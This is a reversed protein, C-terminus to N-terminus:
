REAPLALAIQRSMAVLRGASDWLEGDEDLYGDVLARTRFRYALWGPEPVARVHVTMEITPVWPTDIVNLVPPPLADCFTLLSLPDPERGDVFRTWGEVVPDDTREGLVFALSAPTFRHDFRQVVPPLGAQGVSSVLEDPDPLRPPRAVILSAGGAGVPDAFTALVRVREDGDQLVRAQGTSHRRGVHLVDTAIGVRGPSTKRLFRATVTLPHSHPLAAALARAAIAMVYGGIPVGAVNWRDNLTAVWRGPLVPEVGTDVDFAHM